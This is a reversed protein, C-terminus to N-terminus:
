AIMWQLYVFQVEKDNFDSCKWGTTSIQMITAQRQTPKSFRKYM